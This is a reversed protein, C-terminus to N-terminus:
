DEHEWIKPKNSFDLFYVEPYKERLYSDEKDLERLLEDKEFIGWIDNWSTDTDDTNKVYKLWEEKINRRILVLEEQTDMITHMMDLRWDEITRFTREWKDDDTPTTYQYFYVKEGYRNIDYGNKLAEIDEQVQRQLAKYNRMEKEFNEIGDDNIMYELFSM